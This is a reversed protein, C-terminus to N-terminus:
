LRRILDYSDPFDGSVVICACFGVVPSFLYATAESNQFRNISRVCYCEGNLAVESLVSYYRFDVRPYIDKLSRNIISDEDANLSSLVKKNCYRLVYDVNNNGDSRVHEFIYFKLPMKEFVSFGTGLMSSYACPVPGGVSEIRLRNRNHEGVGRLRGKFEKGDNMTYVGGDINNIQAASVVVGKTISFFERPSLLERMYKLPLYTHIERGDTLYVVTQRGERLIYLINHPFIRNKEFFKKARSEM